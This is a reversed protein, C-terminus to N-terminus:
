IIEVQLVIRDKKELREVLANSDIPDGDFRVVRCGKRFSDAFRTFVDLLDDAEVLIGHKLLVPGLERVTLNFLKVTVLGEMTCVEDSDAKHTISERLGAFYGGRRMIAGVLGPMAASLALLAGDGIKATRYDDVPKGNLFITQLREELYTQPVGLQGCIFDEMSCGTRAKIGVGKSFLPSFRTCVDEEIELVIRHYDTTEM